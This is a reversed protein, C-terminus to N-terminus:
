YVNSTYVRVYRGQGSIYEVPCCCPKERKDRHWQQGESFDNYGYCTAIPKQKHFYSSTPGLHDHHNTLTKVLWHIIILACLGIIRLTLFM